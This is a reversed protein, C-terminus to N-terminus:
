PCRLLTDVGGNGVCTDNGDGGNIVNPGADGTLTDNGGSGTLDEFERISEVDGPGYAIGTALNATVGPYDYSFVVVDTDAGGYMTDRGRGGNVTDTGPGGHMWDDGDNGFLRDAGDDGFITDNGSSGDIDNAGATGRISDNAVGGVLNEFNPAQDTGFGTVAGTSLNVNLASPAHRYDITDVGAGGDLVDDGADGEVIDDGGGAFVTDNGTADEDPSIYDAVGSGVLTDNGAGGYLTCGASGATLRDDGAGSSLNCPTSGGVMTDNGTSGVVYTIGTVIDSGQGTATGTALNVTVPNPLDFLATDYGGNGVIRDNGLGGRVLDDSTTGTVVDSGGRADVTCPRNETTQSCTIRDDFSGGRIDSAVFRIQDNGAAGTATGADINVTVGGPASVYSV